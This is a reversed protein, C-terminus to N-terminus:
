HFMSAILSITTISCGLMSYKNAKKFNNLDTETLIRDYRKEMKAIQKETPGNKLSICSNIVIIIGIVIGVMNWIDWSM